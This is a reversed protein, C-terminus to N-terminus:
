QPEAAVVRRDYDGGGSLLPRADAAATDLQLPAIDLPERAPVFSALSAHREAAFAQWSSAFRELLMLNRELRLRLAEDEMSPGALSAQLARLYDIQVINIFGYRYPTTDALDWAHFFQQM